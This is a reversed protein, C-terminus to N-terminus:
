ISLYSAVANLFTTPNCGPIDVCSDRLFVYIGDNFKISRPLSSGPIPVGREDLGMMLDVREQGREALLSKHLISFLEPSIYDQLPFMCHISYLFQGLDRGFKLCDHEPKFWSGAGVLTARPNLFGSGCAICSFGFDIM